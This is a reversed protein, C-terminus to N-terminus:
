PGPPGRGWGTGRFSKGAGVMQMFEIAMIRGFGEQVFSLTPAPFTFRSPGTFTEAPRGLRCFGGMPATATVLM